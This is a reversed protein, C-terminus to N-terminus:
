LPEEEWKSLKIKRLGGQFGQFGRFRMPFVHFAQQIVAAVLGSALRWLPRAARKIIFNIRIEHRM